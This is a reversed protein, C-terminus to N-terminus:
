KIQPYVIVRDHVLVAVDQLQDSTFDAIVVERPEVSGGKRGRYYLNEDFVTFHLMSKWDDSETYKLVELLHKQGDVLIVERDGDGNIDGVSFLDYSVDEFDTEYSSLPGIHWGDSSRTHLM